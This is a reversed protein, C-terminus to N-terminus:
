GCSGARFDQYVGNFTSEDTPVSLSIEPTCIGDTDSTCYDSGSIEARDAAILTMGTIKSFDYTAKADYISVADAVVHTDFEYVCPASRTVEISLELTHEDTSGAGSYHGPSDEQWVFAVGSVETQQGVQIGVLLYAAAQEDTFSAGRAVGALSLSLLLALFLRMVSM